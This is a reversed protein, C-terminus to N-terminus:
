LSSGQRYQGWVERLADGIEGVTAYGRVAEIIYPMMNNEPTAPLGAIEKIARLSHAVKSNDRNTRLAKLDTIRTEEVEAATRYVHVPKPDEGESRYINV